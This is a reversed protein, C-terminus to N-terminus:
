VADIVAYTLIRLPQLQQHAIPHEQVAQLHLQLVRQQQFFHPQMVIGLAILHLHQVRLARCFDVRLKQLIQRPNLSGIHASKGTDHLLRLQM